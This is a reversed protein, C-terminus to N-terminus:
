KPPIHRYGASRWTSVFDCTSHGPYFLTPHQAALFFLITKNSSYVHYIVYMGFLVLGIFVLAPLVIASPSITVGSFKFSEIFADFDYILVFVLSILFM